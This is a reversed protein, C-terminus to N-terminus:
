NNENDPTKLTNIIQVDSYETSSHTILDVDYVPNTEFDQTYETKLTRQPDDAVNFNTIGLVQEEGAYTVEATIKNNVSDMVSYTKIDAVNKQQQWSDVQESIMNLTQDISPYNSGGEGGTDPQEFHPSSNGRAKFRSQTDINGAGWHKMADTINEKFILYNDKRIVEAAKSLFFDKLKPDVYNETGGSVKFLANGINVHSGFYPDSFIKEILRNFFVNNNNEHSFIVRGSVDYATVTKNNFIMKQLEWDNMNTESRFAKRAPNDEPNVIEIVLEYTKDKFIRFTQKDQRVVPVAVAMLYHQVVDSFSEAKMHDALKSFTTTKSAFSVHILVDDPLKLNGGTGTKTSTNKDQLERDRCQFLL